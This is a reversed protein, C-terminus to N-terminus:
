LCPSSASLMPDFNIAFDELWLFPQLALAFRNL